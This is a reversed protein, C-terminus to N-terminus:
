CRVQAAVVLRVRCETALCLDERLRVFAIRRIDHNPRFIFLLDLEAVNQGSQVAM